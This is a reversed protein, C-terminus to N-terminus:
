HIELHDEKHIGTDKHIFGCLYILADTPSKDQKTLHLSTCLNIYLAKNFGDAKQKAVTIWESELLAFYHDATFQSYDEFVCLPGSIDPEWLNKCVLILM